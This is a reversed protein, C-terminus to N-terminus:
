GGLVMVQVSAFHCDFNNVTKLGNRLRFEVIFNVALTRKVFFIFSKKPFSRIRKEIMPKQQMMTQQRVQKCPQPERGWNELLMEPLNM